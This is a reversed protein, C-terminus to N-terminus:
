QPAAGLTLAAPLWWAIHDVIVAGAAEDFGGVQHLLRYGTPGRPGRSNRCKLLPRPMQPAAKLGRRAEARSGTWLGAIRQVM